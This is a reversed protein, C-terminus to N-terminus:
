GALKAQLEAVKALLTANDLTPAVPTADAYDFSASEEYGEGDNASAVIFGDSFTKIYLDKPTLGQSSEAVPLTYQEGKSEYSLFDGNLGYVVKVSTAQLPKMFEAMTQIITPTSHSM